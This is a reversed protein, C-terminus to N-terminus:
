KSFHIVHFCRSQHENFYKTDRQRSLWSVLSPKKKFGAERKVAARMHSRTGCSRSLQDHRKSAAPDQEERKKRTTRLSNCVRASESPDGFGVSFYVSKKQVEPYRIHVHLRRTRSLSRSKLTAKGKGKGLNGLKVRLLEAPLPLLPSFSSPRTQPLQAKLFINYFYYKHM